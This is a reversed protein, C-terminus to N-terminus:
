VAASHALSTSHSVLRNTYFPLTKSKTRVVFDTGKMKVTIHRARLGKDMMADELKACIEALKAELGKGRLPRFTREVSIGKRGAGADEDPAGSRGLGLGARLLAGSAKESFLAVVLGASSPSVLDRALNLGLGSLIRETVKGIGPVKRVPLSSTFALVAERSRQM